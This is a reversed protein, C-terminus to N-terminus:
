GEEKRIFVLGALKLEPIEVYTGPFYCPWSVTNGDDDQKSITIDSGPKPIFTAGESNLPLLITVGYRSLKVDIASISMTGDALELSVRCRRSVYDPVGVTQKSSVPATNHDGDNLEMDGVPEIDMGTEDDAVQAPKRELRLNDLVEQPIDADIGNKIPPLKGDIRAKMNKQAEDLSVAKYKAKGYVRRAPPIRTAPFANFGSGSCPKVAAGRKEDAELLEPAVQAAYGSKPKKTM